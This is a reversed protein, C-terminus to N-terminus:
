AANTKDCDVTQRVSMADAETGLKQASGSAGPKKLV